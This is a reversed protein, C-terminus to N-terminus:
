SDLAARLRDTIKCGSSALKQFATLGQANRINLNVGNAVFHQVDAELGRITYERYSLYKRVLLHLYSDGQSTKYTPTIWFTKAAICLPFTTEEIATKVYRDGPLEYRYGHANLLIVTGIDRRSWVELVARHIESRPIYRKLTTINFGIFISPKECWIRFVTVAESPLITAGFERLRKPLAPTQAKAYVAALLSFPPANPNGLHLNIDAGRTILSFIYRQLSEASKTNGIIAECLYFLVTVGAGDKANLDAGQNLLIEFLRKVERWNESWHYMFAGSLALLPTENTLLNGPLNVNAGHEILFESILISNRKDESTPFRYSHSLALNLPSINHGHLSAGRMVLDCTILYNAKYIAFDLPRIGTGLAENDLMTPSSHIFGRAIELDSLAGAMHVVTLPHNTNINLSELLPNPVSSQRTLEAPANHKETLLKIMAINGHVIPILLPLIDVRNIVSLFARQVFANEWRDRKNPTVTFIYRCPKDVRAGNTILWDAVRPEADERCLYFHLASAFCELPGSRFFCRSNFDLGYDKAREFFELLRDSNEYKKIALPVASSTREKKNRHYLFRLSTAKNQISTRALTVLDPDMLHSCIM